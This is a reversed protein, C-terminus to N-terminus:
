LRENRKGSELTISNNEPIVGRPRFILDVIVKFNYSYSWARSIVMVRATAIHGLKRRCTM